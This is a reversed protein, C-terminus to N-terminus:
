CRMIQLLCLNAPVLLSSRSSGLESETVVSQPKKIEQLKLWSILQQANIVLFSILMYGLWSSAAQPEWHDCRVAVQLLAPLLRPM